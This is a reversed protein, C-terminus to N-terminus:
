GLEMAAVGSGQPARKPALADADRRTPIAGALVVLWDGTATGSSTAVRGPREMLTFTTALSTSGSPSWNDRTAPETVGFIGAYLTAPGQILNTATVAM